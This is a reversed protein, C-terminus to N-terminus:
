QPHAEALSVVNVKSRKDAEAAQTKRAKVEEPTLPRCQDRHFLRLGNVKLSRAGEAPRLGQELWRRFTLVNVRPQVNKFGAKSFIKLCAQDNKIATSVEGKTTAKARLTNLEELQSALAAKESAIRALIANAEELNFTAPRAENSTTRSKSM